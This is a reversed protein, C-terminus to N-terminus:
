IDWKLINVHGRYVSISSVRDHSFIVNKIRFNCFNPRNRKADHNCGWKGGLTNDEVLFVLLCLLLIVQLTSSLTHFPYVMTHMILFISTHMVLFILTHMILLYMLQCLSFVGVTTVRLHLKYYWISTPWTMTLCSAAHNFCFM